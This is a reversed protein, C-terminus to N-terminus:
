ACAAEKSAAILAEGLAAAFEKSMSLNLPGFYDVSEKGVTRLEVCDTSDPWPGVEVCAGQSHAEFVRRIVEVEVKGTM